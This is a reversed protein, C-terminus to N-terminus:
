YVGRVKMLEHYLYLRNHVLKNMDFMEDTIKKLNKGMEERHKKDKIVRSLVEVWKAKPADPPLLYGTVGNQIVDRYCGIDSAILPVEYRGAEAVKIDSNHTVTFDDLLFLGDGDVKFGYYPQEGLSKTTFSTTLSDRSCKRKNAKKRDLLVPIIDVNGSLQIRYYTNDGINAKFSKIPSVYIGLSRAIFSVDEVLQQSKSDFLYYTKDKSLGGDTDMLGALLNLRNEKSSIKYEHPIFKNGCSIEGLGIKFLDEKLANKIHNNIEIKTASYTIAKTTLKKDEHIKLTPYNNNIYNIFYNKIEDDMTTIGPCQTLSGDGLLIGVFYPDLVLKNSSEFDVGQKYLRYNTQVFDVSNMFERVTFQKFQTYKSKRRLTNKDNLKLPLIHDLTVGFSKGRKPIIEIIEGIGRSLAKVNRVKSDPGILKDGVQIDQVEKISGDYMLIKEGFRFCKMDNFPNMKLPAIAIDMNAYFIGYQHTPLAAYVNYNRAGKFGATLVKEYYDWTQQEFNEREEKIPKTKDIPPRGYFDWLIREKGVKQNVLWPVSSFEKVDPLHHIGGAWGIRVKNGNNTKPTNWCPLNYDIANKIVALMNTEQIFQSVEKAFKEQTVTVLDAHFYIFKTVFSLGGKEYVEKLKHEDYLNTLLDDTDFHFLKGFEKAKGCLRATYNGGLAHINATHVIDAWKLLEMDGEQGPKQTDWGLPNHEWKIEVVNSFLEELKQFPLISRYYTCGGENAKVVLIRLKRGLGPFGIQNKWFEISQINQKEDKNQIM